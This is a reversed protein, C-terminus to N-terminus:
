STKVSLMVSFIAVSSFAYLINQQSATSPKFMIKKNLKVCKKMDGLQPGSSWARMEGCTGFTMDEDNRAEQRTKSEEFEGKELRKEM